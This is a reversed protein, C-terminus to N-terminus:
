YQITSNNNLSSTGTHTTHHTSCHWPTPTTTHAGTHTHARAHTRASVTWTRLMHVTRTTISVVAQMTFWLWNACWQWTEHRRSCSHAGVVNLNDCCQESCTPPHVVRLTDEQLACIYSDMGVHRSWKAMRQQYSRMSSSITCGDSSRSKIGIYLRWPRVRDLASSGKWRPCKPSM